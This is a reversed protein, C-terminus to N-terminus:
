INLLNINDQEYKQGKKIWYDLIERRGDRSNLCDIVFVEVKNEGKPVRFTSCGVVGYCSTENELYKFFKDIEKQTVGTLMVSYGDDEVIIM